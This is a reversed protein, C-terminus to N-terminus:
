ISSITSGLHMCVHVKSCEMAARARPRELVSGLILGRCSQASSTKDSYSACFIISWKCLRLCVHMLVKM